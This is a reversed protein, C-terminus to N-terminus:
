LFYILLTCFVSHRHLGACLYFLNFLLRSSNASQLHNERYRQLLKAALAALTDRLGPVDKVAELLWGHGETSNDIHPLSYGELWRQLHREAGDSTVESVVSDRWSEFTSPAMDM